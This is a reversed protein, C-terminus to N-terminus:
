ARANNEVSRRRQERISRYDRTPQACRGLEPRDCSSWSAIRKDLGDRRVRAVERGDVTWRLPEDALSRGDISIAHGIFSIVEIESFGENM